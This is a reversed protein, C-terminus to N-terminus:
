SDVINLTVANTISAPVSAASGSDEIFGQFTATLTRGAGAPSTLVVSPAPEPISSPVGLRLEHGANNWIYSPSPPRGDAYGPLCLNGLGFRQAVVTATTPVELWCYLAFLGPAPGSPSADVSIELPVHAPIDVTFTSTGNIKLVPAPRWNVGSAVTGVRCSLAPTRNELVLLQGTSRMSLGLDIISDQNWDFCVIGSVKGDVPINSERRFAPTAPTGTGLLIAIDRSTENAIAMDPVDDANLDAVAIAVAGRGTAIVDILEFAGDGKGRFVRARGVDGGTVACLDLIGDGDFDATALGTPKTGVDMTTSALLGGQGDGRFVCIREMFPALVALDLNGDIDFDGSVSAVSDAPGEQVLCLGLGGSGDGLVVCLENYTGVVVDLNGDNNWDGLALSQNNGTQCCEMAPGFAGEGDGLRVQLMGYQDLIILDTVGDRDLDASALHTPRVGSPISIATRYSGMDDALAVSITGGERDVSLLDPLSDGDLRTAQIAAPGNGVDIQAALAFAIDSEGSRGLSCVVCLLLVAVFLVRLSQGDPELM